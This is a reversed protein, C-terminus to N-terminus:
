AHLYAMIAAMLRTKGVGTALSFCVSPFEREFSTVTLFKERVRDLQAALERSHQRDIDAIQEPTYVRERETQPNRESQTVWPVKEWKLLDLVEAFVGLAEQQPKRLSMSVNLDKLLDLKRESPM